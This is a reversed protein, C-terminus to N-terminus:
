SNIKLMFSEVKFNPMNVFPYELAFLQLFVSGGTCPKLHLDHWWWRLRSILLSAIIMQLKHHQSAVSGAGWAATNMKTKSEFRTVFRTLSMLMLAHKEEFFASM